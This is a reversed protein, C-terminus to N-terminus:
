QKLREIAKWMEMANSCADFTSYIDNDIGEITTKSGGEAVPITRETWKFKYPLHRHKCQLIIKVVPKWSPM